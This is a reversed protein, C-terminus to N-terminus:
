PLAKPQPDTRREHRELSELIAERYSLGALKLRARENAYLVVSTRDQLYCKTCKGKTLKPTKLGCQPCIFGGEAASEPKTEDTM